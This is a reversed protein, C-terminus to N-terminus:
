CLIIYIDTGTHPSSAMSTVTVPLLTTGSPVYVDYLIYAPDTNIKRLADPDPDTSVIDYSHSVVDSICNSTVNIITEYMPIGTDNAKLVCFCSKNKSGEAFEAILCVKGNTALNLFVWQVDFTGTGTFMFFKCLLM